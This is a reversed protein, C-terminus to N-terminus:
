VTQLKRILQTTKDGEGGASDKISQLDISEEKLFKGFDTTDDTRGILSPDSKLAQTYYDVKNDNLTDDRLEHLDKLKLKENRSALDLKGDKNTYAQYVINVVGKQMAIKPLDETGNIKKMGGGRQLMKREDDQSGSGKVFYWKEGKKRDAFTSEL